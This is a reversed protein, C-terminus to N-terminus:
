GAFRLAVCISVVIISLTPGIVIASDARLFGFTFVQIVNESELWPNSGDDFYMPCKDGISM